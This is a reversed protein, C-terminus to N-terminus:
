AGSRTLSLSGGCQAAVESAIPRAWRYRALWRVARHWRRITRELCDQVLDDAASRDPVLARAYRPPAPLQPEVLLLMETM